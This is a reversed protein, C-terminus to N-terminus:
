GGNYGPRSSSCFFDEDEDRIQTIWDSPQYINGDHGPRNQLQLLADVRAQAWGMADFDKGADLGLYEAFLDM